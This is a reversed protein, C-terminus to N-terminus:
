NPLNDVSVRMNRIATQGNGDPIADLVVNVANSQNEVFQDYQSLQTGDLDDQLRTRARNFALSRDAVATTMSGDAAVIAGYNNAQSFVEDMLVDLVLDQTAGSLSGGSNPLSNSYLERLAEERVILDYDGLLSSQEQTLVNSLNSLLADPGFIAAAQEQTLDGSLLQGMMQYRSDAYNILADEITERNASGIGLSDLYDSYLVVGAQALSRTMDPDSFMALPSSGSRRVPRTRAVEQRAQELLAEYDPDTQERAEQLAQSLNSLQIAASQIQSQLEELQAESEMRLRTNAEVQENLQERFGIASELQGQLQSNSSQLNWTILSLGGVIIGGVFLPLSKM